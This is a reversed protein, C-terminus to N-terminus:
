RRSFAEMVAQRHQLLMRQQARVPLENETPDTSQQIEVNVVPQAIPANSAIHTEPQTLREAPSRQFLLVQTLASPDSSSGVLVFNFQSGTLLTNLVQQAPGPGLMAVVREEVQAPLEIEAGTKEGVERLIEALTSNNASITLLGNKFTVTPQTSPQRVQSSSLQYPPSAVLNTPQPKAQPAQSGGAALGVGSVLM